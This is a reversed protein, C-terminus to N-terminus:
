KKKSFERHLNWNWNKFQDNTKNARQTRLEEYRRSRLGQHLIYNALLREQEKPERQVQDVSEKTTLFLINVVNKGCHLSTLTCDTFFNIYVYVCICMVIVLFLALVQIYSLKLSFPFHPFSTIINYDWFYFFYNLIM